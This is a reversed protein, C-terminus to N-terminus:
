DNQTLETNFEKICIKASIITGPFYNNAFIVFKKDPKNEIDGEANFTMM